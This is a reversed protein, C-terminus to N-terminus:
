LIGYSIQSAKLFLELQVRKDGEVKIAFFALPNTQNKIKITLAEISLTTWVPAKDERLWGSIASGSVGLLEALESHKLKTVQLFMKLHEAKTTQNTRKVKKEQPQKALEVVKNSQTM